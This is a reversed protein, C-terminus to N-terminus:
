NKTLYTFFLSLVSYHVKIMEISLKLYWLDMPYMVACFQKRTISSQPLNEMEDNEELSFQSSTGEILKEVEQSWEQLLISMQLWVGTFTSHGYKKICTQYQCAGKRDLSRITWSWHVIDPRNSATLISRPQICNSRSNIKVNCKAKGHLEQTM